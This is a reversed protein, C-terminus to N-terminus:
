KWLLFLRVFHFDTFIQVGLRLDLCLILICIDKLKININQSIYSIGMYSAWLSLVPLFEFIGSTTIESILIGSSIITLHSSAFSHEFHCTCEQSLKNFSCYLFCWVHLHTLMVFFTEPHPLDPEPSVTKCHYHHLVPNTLFSFCLCRLIGRYVSSYIVCFPWPCPLLYWYKKEVFAM